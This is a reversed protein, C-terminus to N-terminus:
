APLGVSVGGVNTPKQALLKAVIFVRYNLICYENLIFDKLLMQDFESTILIPEDMSSARRHSLNVRLRMTCLMFVTSIMSTIRM